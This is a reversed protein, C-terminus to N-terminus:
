TPAATPLGVQRAADLLRRDYAVLHILGDGLERASALHIADLTRLTAPELAGAADLLSQTITLEAVADLVERAVEVAAQSHRLTARLLEARSLASTVLSAEDFSSLFRRLPDSEPEAIVLKALASTDLYIL